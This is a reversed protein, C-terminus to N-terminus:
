DAKVKSAAVSNVSPPASADGPASSTGVAAGTVPAGLSDLLGLAPVTVSVVHANYKSTLADVASRLANIEDFTKQGLAVFQAANESGLHIEGSPKIHIQIGGDLGMVLNDAHVDSLKKADPYFGAYAAADSLDFRRMDLPDTDNGQKAMFQDISRENFVLQVHAGKKLPFSLFMSESRQFLIPVKPIIPLEEVIRDRELTYFTRKLLPKVDAKQTAPDWSEIKGPLAVHVDSLVSHIAGRIVESWSPSDTTKESM